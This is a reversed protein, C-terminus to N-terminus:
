KTEAANAKPEEVTELIKLEGLSIKAERLNAKIHVLDDTQKGFVHGGAQSLVPLAELFNNGPTRVSLRTVWRLKRVKEKRLLHNDYAMLIVFYREELLEARLGAEADSSIGARPGFKNLARQYGLLAANRQMASGSNDQASSMSDSIANIPGTDAIGGDAVQAGMTSITDGLKQIMQEKQPDDYIESVGWHVMIVLDAGNVDSTPIYNQKALDKFLTKTLTDFSTKELGKDRTAGGFFKGKMYVYTETKPGSEGAVERTYGPAATSSIAIRENLAAFSGTAFILSFFAGILM